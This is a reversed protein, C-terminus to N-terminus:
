DEANVQIDGKAATLLNSVQSRVGPSRRVSRVILLLPM